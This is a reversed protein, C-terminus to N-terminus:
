RPAHGGRLSNLAAQAAADGHEARIALGSQFDAMADQVAMRQDLTMARKTRLSQLTAGVTVLDNSKSAALALAALEQNRRAEEDSIGPSKAFASDLSKVADAPDSKKCGAVAVALAAALAPYHLLPRKM